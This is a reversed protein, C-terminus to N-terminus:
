YVDTEIMLGRGGGDGGSGRGGRRGGPGGGLDSGYRGPGGGRHSARDRNTRERQVTSFKEALAQVDAVSSTLQTLLATLQVDQTQQINAHALATINQTPDTSDSTSSPPPPALLPLRSLLANMSRLLPHNIAAGISSTESDDGGGVNQAVTSAPEDPSTLHSKPLSELYSRLLTIREDLMKIANVKANLSSILEEDEASLTSVPPATTSAAEPEESDTEKGKGKGKVKKSVNASGADGARPVATANAAGKAVFDVSIMEADDTEIEFNLERFRTQTQGDEQDQVPEYLSIPLKGGALNEVLDPHFLLLLTNDTSTLQQVQQLIALHAPQPGEVPGIMFIATLDLAPVKHVEKFMSLRELFWDGDLPSAENDADALRCEYASELTIDRGNQQGIIGGVIAGSQQRITRRTIYDSITLLVIPHLQVNNASDLTKGGIVLPNATAQKGAM